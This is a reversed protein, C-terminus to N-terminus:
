ELGDVCRFLALFVQELRHVAGVVAFDEACEGARVAVQRQTKCFEAGYVAILLAALEVAKGTHTAKRLVVCM